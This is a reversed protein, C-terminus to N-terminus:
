GVEFTTMGFIKNTDVVPPTGYYMRACGFVYKAHYKKVLQIAENNIVPIDLYLAEGPVSNLCAKYLEEAVTKNDAFLPCIKYGKKAKRVFAYGKLIGNESYKFSYSEPQIIWPILFQPRKYGFCKQDYDIISDHDKADIGSINKDVDCDYATIEYREDRFAIEFGGKNYFPQMAIVGDMGICADKNLRSLLKNRRRYWLKKGIGLSRYEPKVIFGGMFGFLDNYKVIFGGAILQKNHYYGYYGDPDTEWFVDADYIGPNWGEKDAWELITKLGDFNLKEFGLKEPDVSVM